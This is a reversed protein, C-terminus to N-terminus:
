MELAGPRGFVSFLVVSVVSIFLFFSNVFACCVFSFRAALAWRAGRPGLPASYKRKRLQAGFAKFISGPLGWFSWFDKFPVEPLVRPFYM